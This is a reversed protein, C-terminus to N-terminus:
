KIVCRFRLVHSCQPEAPDHLPFLVEVNQTKSVYSYTLFGDSTGTELRGAKYTPKKTTFYFQREPLEYNCYSGAPNMAMSKFNVDAVFRTEGADTQRASVADSDHDVQIEHDHLDIVTRQCFLRANEASWALSSFSLCGILLLSTSAFPVSLFRKM